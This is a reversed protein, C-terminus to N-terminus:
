RAGAPEPAALQVFYARILADPVVTRRPIKHNHTQSVQDWPTGPEHTMNSLQIATLPGYVEWIRDLLARAHRSEASGDDPIEPRVQRFDAFGVGGDGWDLETARGTIEGNGFHKFEHYLSPVVPGYPWAEVPGAILPEGLLALHWGQAFYVLKQLKM